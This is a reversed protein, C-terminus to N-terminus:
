LLMVYLYFLMNHTILIIYIDYYFSFSHFYHDLVKSLFDYLLYLM